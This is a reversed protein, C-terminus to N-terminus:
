RLLIVSTIIGATFGGIIGWTVGTFIGRKRENKAYKMGQNWLNNLEVIKDSSVNYARQYVEVREQLNREINKHEAIQLDFSRITIENKDIISKYDGITKEKAKIMGVVDNWKRSSILVTDKRIMYSVYLDGYLHMTDIQSYALLPFLM